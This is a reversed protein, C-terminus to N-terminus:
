GHTKLVRHPVGHAILEVDCHYTKFLDEQTVETTSHFILTKNLCAIKNVMVSVATIDHSIMVIAMSKNLEKLLDYFENETPTDVSATPEDLLLMKPKNLLARALLIRQKEGGSMDSLPRNKLHLARVQQLAEEASAIDKRTPRFFVSNKLRSMLVIDIARIPYDPDSGSFQALYGVQNRGQQPSQGFLSIRGSEPTLLGVILRGLTSKGGGNPGILAIFDNEYVSFCIDELVHRTGFYFHVHDIELVPNM